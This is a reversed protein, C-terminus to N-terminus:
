SMPFPTTIDKQNRFLLPFFVGLRAAFPHKINSTAFIYIYIYIEIDCHNQGNFRSTNITESNSAKNNYVEFSNVLGIGEGICM